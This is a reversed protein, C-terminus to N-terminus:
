AYQLIQQYCWCRYSQSKVSFPPSYNVRLTLNRHRRCFSEWWGHSVVKQIGNRDYLHQVIATVEQRSRPYGISVCELLFCVLEEEEQDSLYKGPGSVAGPLIRGSIRDGLISKPVDYEEAARRVSIGDKIVADVALAMREESWRKYESRYVSASPVCHAVALGLGSTKVVRDGLPPYQDM